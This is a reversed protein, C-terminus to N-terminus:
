ISNYGLRSSGVVFIATERTWGHNSEECCTSQSVAQGNQFRNSFLHAVDCKWQVRSEDDAIYESSM